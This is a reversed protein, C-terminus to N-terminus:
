EYTVALQVFQDFIHYKLIDQRYSCNALCGGISKTTSIAVYLRKFETLSPTKNHGVNEQDREYLFLSSLNDKKLRDIWKELNQYQGLQQIECDSQKDHLCAYTQPAKMHIGTQFYATKKSYKECDTAKSTVPIHLGIQPYTISLVPYQPPKKIELHSDV